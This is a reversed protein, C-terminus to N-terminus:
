TMRVMRGSVVDKYEPNGKQLTDNEKRCYEVEMLSLLCLLGESNLLCQNIAM